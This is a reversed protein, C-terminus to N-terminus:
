PPVRPRCCRLCRVRCRQRACQLFQRRCLRRTPVLPSRPSLRQSPSRRSPHVRLRWRPCQRPLRHRFHQRARFIFLVFFHTLPPICPTDFASLCFKSVRLSDFKMATKKVVPFPLRRVASPLPTPLASPSGSPLQTPSGSPIATPLATPPSSPLPSPMASPLWQLHCCPIVM